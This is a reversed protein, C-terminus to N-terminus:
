LIVVRGKVPIPESGRMGGVVRAETKEWEPGGHRSLWALAARWNENLAANVIFGNPAAGLTQHADTLEAKYHKNLTRLDLRLLRAILKLSTGTSRLVSDTHRYAETPVHDPRGRRRKATVEHFMGDPMTPSTAHHM